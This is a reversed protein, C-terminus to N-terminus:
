TRSNTIFYTQRGYKDTRRWRKTQFLRAHNESKRFSRFKYKNRLQLRLLQPYRRSIKRQDRQSIKRSRRQEWYSFYKRHIEIMQNKPNWIRSTRQSNQLSTKERHFSHYFKRTHIGALDRCCFRLGHLEAPCDAIMVLRFSTYAIIIKRYKIHM